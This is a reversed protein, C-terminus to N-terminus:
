KKGTQMTPLKTEQAIKKVKNLSSESIHGNLHDAYRVTLGSPSSDQMETLAEKADIENEDIENYEKM